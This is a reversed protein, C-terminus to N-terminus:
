ERMVPGTESEPFDELVHSSYVYDLVDARFWYLDRADGGLQVPQDGVDAYPTPLDVRIASASVADGGFGIDIGYGVCHPAVLDRHKATASLYRASRDVNMAPGYRSCSRERSNVTSGRWFRRPGSGTLTRLRRLLRAVRADM